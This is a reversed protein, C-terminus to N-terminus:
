AEANLLKGGVWKAGEIAEPLALGALAGIVPKKNRALFRSTGTLVGQLKGPKFDHFIKAQTDVEPLHKTSIGARTLGRGIAPIQGKNAKALATIDGAAIRDRLVAKPDAMNRDKFFRSLFDKTAKSRSRQQMIGGVAAGTTSGLARQPLGEAWNSLAEETTLEDAPKVSTLKDIAYHGLSAAGGALGGSILANKLRRMRKQGPTENPDDSDGTMIAGATAGATGALLGSTLKPNKAAFEQIYDLIGSASKEQESM